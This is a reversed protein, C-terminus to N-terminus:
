RVQIRLALFCCLFSANIDVRVQKTRVYGYAYGTVATKKEDSQCYCVPSM